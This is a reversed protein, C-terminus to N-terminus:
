VISCISELVLLKMALSTMGCTQLIHSALYDIYMVINSWIFRVTGTLLGGRILWMTAVLVVLLAVVLTLPTNLLYQLVVSEELLQM